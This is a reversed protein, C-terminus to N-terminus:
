DGYEAPRPKEASFEDLTKASPSRGQAHGNAMGVGHRSRLPAFVDSVDTRNVRIDPLFGRERGRDLARVGHDVRDAEIDLTALLGELGHM